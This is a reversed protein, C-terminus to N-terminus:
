PVYLRGTGRLRDINLLYDLMQVAAREAYARSHLVRDPDAITLVPLNDAASRSRITVELSDPGEANRNATILVVQHQQCAQWLDADSVDAALGLDPFTLLPVQLPAWLDRWTEGELITLLVHVHGQINVDSRIARV